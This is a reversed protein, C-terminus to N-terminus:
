ASVQCCAECQIQSVAVLMLRFQSDQVARADAVSEVLIIGIVLVKIHSHARIDLRDACLVAIGTSVKCCKASLHRGMIGERKICVIYAHESRVEDQDTLIIRQAVVTQLICPTQDLGTYGCLQHHTGAAAVAPCRMGTYIGIQRMIGDSKGVLSLKAHEIMQFHFLDM